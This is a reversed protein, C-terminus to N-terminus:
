GRPRSRKTVRPRRVPTPCILTRAVYRCYRARVCRCRPSPVPSARAGARARSDRCASRVYVTRWVRAARRAGGLCVNSRHTTRRPSSQRTLGCM